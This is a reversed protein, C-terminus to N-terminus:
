RAMTIPVLYSDSMWGGLPCHQPPMHHISGLDLFPTPWPLWIDGSSSNESLNDWSAPTAMAVPMMTALLYAGAQMRLTEGQTKQLGWHHPRLESTVVLGSDVEWEGGWLSPGPTKAEMWEASSAGVSQHGLCLLSGSHTGSPGALSAPSDGPFSLEKSM